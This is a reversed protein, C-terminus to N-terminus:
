EKPLANSGGSQRGSVADRIVDFMAVTIAHTTKSVELLEVTQADSSARAEREAEYAERWQDSEVQKDRLTSRPVIRGLFLLLVFIGLLGPATLGVVPIGEFM